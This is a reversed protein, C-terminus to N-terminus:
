GPWVFCLRCAMLRAVEVGGIPVAQAAQAQQVEVAVVAVFPVFFGRM